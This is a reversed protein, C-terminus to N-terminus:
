KKFQQLYAQYNIGTVTDGAQQNVITLEFGSGPLLILRRPLPAQAQYVPAVMNVTTLGQAFTYSRPLTAPLAVIDGYDYIRDSVTTIHLHVYRDAATADPTVTFWLAILELRTLEPVTYIFGGGPAPPAIQANTIIKVPEDPANLYEPPYHEM